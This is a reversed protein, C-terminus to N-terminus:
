TNEKLYKEHDDLVQNIDAIMKDPPIRKFDPRAKLVDKMTRKPKDSV